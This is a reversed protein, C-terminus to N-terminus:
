TSFLCVRRKVKLSHSLPGSIAMGILTGCYFWFISIAGDPKISLGLDKAIMPSYQIYIIIFLFTACGALTCAIFTFTSKLKKFILSLRGKKIRKVENSLWLVSESIKYRLALVIFGMIGGILFCHRWYIYGGAIGGLSAGIVGIVSVITVAYTRKEKTFNESILSVGIGMEGSLGIGVLFRIIKYEVINNVFYNAISLVSYMIISYYLTKKRDFRDGIIGWLFGGIVLGGLQFLVIELGLQTRLISDPIGLDQLSKDCVANLIIIDFVDVLYGLSVIM